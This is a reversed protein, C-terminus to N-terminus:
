EETKKDDDSDEEILSDEILQQAMRAEEQINLKMLQIEEPTKEDGWLMELSTDLDILNAERAVSLSQVIGDFTPKEYEAFAVLVDYKSTDDIIVYENVVRNSHLALVLKTLEKLAEDWRHIKESRTRMSVKERISLAEGSANAGSIDYGISATSLGTTLVAHKLIENFTDIYGKITNQIDIVDRKAEQNTGEPNSDYLITYDSYYDRPKITNGKEDKECMNEPIYVHVKSKRIFNMMNSYVEDLAQFDDIIGNYDSKASTKNEKYVAMMMKVPQGDPTKFDLRKLGSTEELTDLSVLTPKSGGDKVKMLRYDIYGRGCETYLIFKDKDKAYYDKFIIANIRNYKKVLEIDEKPYPILIPYESFEPDLVPKFAVAGSYSELEAAKQLLPEFDNDDYIDNVIKTIDENINNSNEKSITITPKESFILNVMTKTIMDALPYHVIPINGPTLRYFDQIPYLRNIPASAKYFRLLIDKNASFWIRNQILDYEDDSFSRQSLDIQHDANLIYAEIRKDIYNNIFGM